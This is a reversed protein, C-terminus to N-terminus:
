ATGEIGRWPEILLQWLGGSIVNLHPHASIFISPIFIHLDLGNVQVYLLQCKQDILKSSVVM